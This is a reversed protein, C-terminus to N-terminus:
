QQISCSRRLVASKLMSIAQHCMIPMIEKGKGNWHNRAVFKTIYHLTSTQLNTDSRDEKNYSAMLAEPRWTAWEMIANQNITAAPPNVHASRSDEVFVSPDRKAALYCTRLKSMSDLPAFKMLALMNEKTWLVRPGGKSQFADMTNVLTRRREITM